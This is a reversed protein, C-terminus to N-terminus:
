INYMYGRGRVFGHCMLYIMYATVWPKRMNYPSVCSGPLMIEGTPRGTAQCASPGARMRSATPACLPWQTKLVTIDCSRWKLWHCGTPLHLASSAPTVPWSPISCCILWLCVLWCVARWCVFIHLFMSHFVHFSHHCSQLLTKRYISCCMWMWVTCHSALAWVCPTLKHLTYKQFHSQLVLYPRKSWGVIFINSYVCGHTRLAIVPTHVRCQLLYDLYRWYSVDRFRKCWPANSGSLCWKQNM